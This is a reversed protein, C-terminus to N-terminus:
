EWRVQEEIFKINKIPIKVFRLRYDKVLDDPEQFDVQWEFDVYDESPYTSGGNLYLPIFINEWM